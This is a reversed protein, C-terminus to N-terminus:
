DIYVSHATGHALTVYQLAMGQRDLLRCVNSGFGRDVIICLLQLANNPM